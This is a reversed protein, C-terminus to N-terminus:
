ACRIIPGLATYKPHILNLIRKDGGWGLLFSKNFSNYELLMCGLVVVYM